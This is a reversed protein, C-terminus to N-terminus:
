TVLVQHPFKEITKSLSRCAARFLEYHSIFEFNVQGNENTPNIVTLFDYEQNVESVAKRATEVWEKVPYRVIWLKHILEAIVSKINPEWDCLPPTDLLRSPSMEYEFDNLLEDLDKRRETWERVEILIVDELYGTGQLRGQLFNAGCDLASLLRNKLWQHNFDSRRRQWKSSIDEMCDGLFNM